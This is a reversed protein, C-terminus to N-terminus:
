RAPRAGQGPRALGCSQGHPGGAPSWALWGTGRHRRSHLPLGGPWGTLGAAAAVQGQGTAPPGRPLTAVAHGRASSQAIPGAAVAATARRGRGPGLRRRRPADWVVQCAPEPRCPEPRGRARRSGGRRAQSTSSTTSGITTTSWCVLPWRASGWSGLTIRGGAPSWTSTAARDPSAHPTRAPRTRNPSDRWGAPGSRCPPASPWRGRHLPQPSRDGGALQDAGLSAASRSSRSIAWSRSARPWSAWLSAWFSARSPFVWPWSAVPSPESRSSTGAWVCARSAWTSSSAITSRRSYRLRAESFRAAAASGGSAGTGARAPADAAPRASGPRASRDARSSRRAPAPPRAPGRRDPGPPAAPRPRQHGQQQHGQDGAHHRQRHHQGDGKPDHRHHPHGGAPDAQRHGPRRGAPAHVQLRGHHEHRAKRGKLQHPQQRACSPGPGRATAPITAMGAWHSSSSTGNHGASRPTGTALIPCSRPSRDEPPSSM